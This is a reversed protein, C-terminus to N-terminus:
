VTDPHRLDYLKGAVWDKVSMVTGITLAGAMLSLYGFLSPSEGTFICMFIYLGASFCLVLGLLEGAFALGAVLGSAAGAVGSVVFLLPIAIVAVVLAIAIMALKAFLKM